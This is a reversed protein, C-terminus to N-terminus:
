KPLPCGEFTVQMFTLDLWRGFKCGVQPCEGVKQFGLQEHLRLSGVNGSEIGAIMVHYGRERAAGMLAHMLAKGVGKRQAAKHVYVSHEVTYKYGDWARWPGFTAYGNVVGDDDVSVLVPLDAEDHAKLWAARNAVDVVRDNWIATTTRVAHNYIETIIPLDDEIAHRIDM